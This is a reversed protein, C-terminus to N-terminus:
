KQCCVCKSQPKEAAELNVVEPDIVPEKNGRNLSVSSDVLTQFADNVGEGTKASTEAYMIGYQKAKDEGKTTSVTRKEIDTKNGILLFKASPCERKATVIWSDVKEFCEQSDVAFMIIVLSAGRYYMPVLSQYVEQGATDWIRLKIEEGKVTMTKSRSESAVTPQQDLTFNRDVFYNCVCTKGASQPGVMVLKVSKGNM